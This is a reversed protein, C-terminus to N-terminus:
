VVIIMVVVLIVIRKMRTVNMQEAHMMVIGMVLGIHDAYRTYRTMRMNMTLTSYVALDSYNFLPGSEGYM